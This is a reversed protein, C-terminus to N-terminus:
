SMMCWGDKVQGVPVERGFIKQHQYEHAHSIDRNVRVFLVHIEAESSKHFFLQAESGAHLEQSMWPMLM